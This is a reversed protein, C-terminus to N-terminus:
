QSTINWICRSSATWYITWILDYNSNYFMLKVTVGCSLPNNQFVLSNISDLNIPYSLGGQSLSVNQNCFWWVTNFYQLYWNNNVIVYCCWYIANVINNIKTHKIIITCNGPGGLDIYTLNFDVCCMCSPGNCVCSKQATSESNEDRGQADGDNDWYLLDAIDNNLQWLISFM